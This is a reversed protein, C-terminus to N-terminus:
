KQGGPAVPPAGPVAPQQQILHFTTALCRAKLTVEEGSTLPDFFEINEVNIIRDTRGIEYIFKALQHFKGTIELRMPVKAFFSQAQEEQPQWAKLDIGAVNSVQQITSLFSAAETEAPLVKNFERQKTERVALEDRDAFYSSQAQKQEREEGELETTRRRAKDVKDSADSYVIFYFAVGALLCVLFGFAFKGPLPLKSLSSQAM